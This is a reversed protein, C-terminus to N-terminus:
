KTFSIRGIHDIALKLKPYRRAVEGFEKMNDNVLFALPVGQEQAVPWLWEMAGDKFWTKQHPQNMAWRLGLMGPKKMWEAVREKAGPEDLPFWGMVALRDPYKRHAALALENVQFLSAPPCIIAADVGAGDMEAILDDATFSPIQRHHAGLKANEWIHVQSDVILM